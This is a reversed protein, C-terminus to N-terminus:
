GAISLSASCADPPRNHGWDQDDLLHAAPSFDRAWQALGDGHSMKKEVAGRVPLYRQLMPFRLITAQSIQALDFAASAAEPVADLGGAIVKLYLPCRGFFARVPHRDRLVRHATLYPNRAFDARGFAILGTRTCLERARVLKSDHGDEFLWYGTPFTLYGYGFQALLDYSEGCAWRLAEVFDSAVADGSELAIQAALPISIAGRTRRIQYNRFYRGAMAPPEFHVEARAGILDGVLERLKTQYPTPLAQASLIDWRFSADGQSLLSPLTLREFRAFLAEMRPPAFADERAVHSGRSQFAFRTQFIVQTM